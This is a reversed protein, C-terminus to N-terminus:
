QILHLFTKRSMTNRRLSRFSGHSFGKWIQKWARRISWSDGPVHTLESHVTQSLLASHSAELPHLTLLLSFSSLIDVISRSSILLSCDRNPRYRSLLPYLCSSFLRSRLRSVFNPKESSKVKCLIQPSSPSDSVFLAHRHELWTDNKKTSMLITIISIRAQRVFRRTWSRTM